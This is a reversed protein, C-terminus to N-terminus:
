LIYLESHKFFVLSVSSYRHWEALFASINLRLLLCRRRECPFMFSDEVCVPLPNPPPLAPPPRRLFLRVPPVLLSYLLSSSSSRSGMLWPLFLLGREEVDSREDGVRGLSPRRRRSRGLLAAEPRRRDGADIPFGADNSLFPPFTPYKVIEKM